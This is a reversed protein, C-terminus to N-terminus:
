RKSPPLPILGNALAYITLGAPTHIQLKRSINKRHTVVTHPSICLNDAIQKNSMGQVVAIVVEKERETLAETQEDANAFASIASNLRQAKLDQEMSFILPVLIKDEVSQHNALWEENNYLYFLASTLRHSNAPSSPLYKIILQKLEKLSKDAESHQKAFDKISYTSSPTGSLLKEVYPFLVREEYRMHRRIEQAYEDYVRLILTSIENGDDLSDALQRRVFPLQYDIYYRHCADLYQLLSRASLTEPRIDALGNITLNVVALFTAADVKAQRCVESVTKNGFGLAIGFASLSQLVNYNDRILDIMKDTAEYTKAQKMPMFTAPKATIQLVWFYTIAFKQERLADQQRSFVHINVWKHPNGPPLCPLLKASM